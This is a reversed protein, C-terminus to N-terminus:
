DSNYRAARSRSTGSWSSRDTDSIIRPKTGPFRELAQQLVLELANMSNALAMGAAMDANFAV